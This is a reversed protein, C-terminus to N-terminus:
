WAQWLYEVSDGPREPSVDVRGCPDFQLQLKEASLSAPPGHKSDLVIKALNQHFCNRLGVYSTTLRPNVEIVWPGDDGFIVDIGLFGHWRPLVRAVQGATDRLQDRIALSPVPLSGGKYRFQGDQSISQCCPELVVFGDNCGLMSVSFSPGLIYEEIRIERERKGDALRLGELELPENEALLRVGLSGAGDNPKVILPGVPRTFARSSPWTCGRPTRIGNKQLFDATAQKDSALAVLETGPSSLRIRGEVRRTLELQACDVEPALIWADDCEELATEFAADFSDIDAVAYVNAGAFNPAALRRDAMITVLRGSQSVDEVLADRMAAGEAVFSPCDDPRLGDRFLGGATLYEFVFTRGTM